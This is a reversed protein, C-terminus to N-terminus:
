RSGRGKRAPAARRRRPTASSRPAREATRPGPRARRRSGRPTRPDPSPRDGERPPSDLVRAVLDYDGSDTVLARVFSGPAADCDALVVLGDVEPAQGAHRGQMLFSSEQSVGEVLVELERGRLARLKRRSVQRQARMLEAARKEAVRRPVPDPQRASATGEESSFPFVGLHELEMERVFDLLARHARESEGPHGSILTGRLHVGPIARRLEEVLRRVRAGRYGRRMRRLVEDDVHQFPLDLYPVVRPLGAMAELLRRDVSSPYSYLVRLWRLGPVEDLAQLLEALHRRPQLDRGWATTEQAVLCIERTGAEVLRAAEERLSELGRSRQPGRLRPIICFACRRDCGEAIKLYASRSTDVLAREHACTEEDVAGAEGVALRAVAAGGLIEALRALDATGIFHDVEPLERALEEPHRQSLCGAMVLRVGPRGTKHRALELVTEISEQKAPLIFGCTNVVIVDADAPDAALDYGLRSALGAMRESDVRNKPCGLAVLHLV